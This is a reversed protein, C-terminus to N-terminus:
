KKIAEKEDALQTVSVLHGVKNLMGRITPSDHHTVSSGFKGLGLAAVVKRQKHQKGIMGKTLKIELKQM